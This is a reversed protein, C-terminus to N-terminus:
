VAMKIVENVRKGGMLMSDIKRTTNIRLWENSLTSFQGYAVTTRIGGWLPLQNFCCWIKREFNKHIYKLM